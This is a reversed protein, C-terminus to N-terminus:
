SYEKSQVQTSHRAGCDSAFRHLQVEIQATAQILELLGSKVAKNRGPLSSVSRLLNKLISSILLSPEAIRLAPTSNSCSAAPGSLRFLLIGPRRSQAFDHEAKLAVVGLKRDIPARLSFIMRRAFCAQSRERRIVRSPSLLAIKPQASLTRRIEAKFRRERSYTM